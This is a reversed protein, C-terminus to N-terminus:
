QLASNASTLSGMGNVHHRNAPKILVVMGASYKKNTWFNPNALDNDYAAKIPAHPMAIM